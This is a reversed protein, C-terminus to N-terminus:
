YANQRTSIGIMYVIKENESIEYFVRYNGIRYRWTQPNYNKLKKINNGYHPEEQLQPYARATLKNEILIKNKGKIKELTRMFNDTEFVKYQSM